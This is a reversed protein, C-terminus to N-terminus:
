RINRARKVTLLFLAVFKGMAMRLLILLNLRISYTLLLTGMPCTNISIGAWLRRWCLLWCYDQITSADMKTCSGAKISIRFTRSYRTCNHGTSSFHSISNSQTKKHHSGTYWTTSSLALTTTLLGSRTKLQSSLPSKRIWTPQMEYYYEM